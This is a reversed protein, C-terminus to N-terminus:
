QSAERYKRCRSGIYQPTYKESYEEYWKSLTGAGLHDYIFEYQARLDERKRAQIAQPDKAYEAKAALNASATQPQHHLYSGFARNCYASYENTFLIFTHWMEDVIILNKDISLSRPANEHLDRSKERALACLYIWKKTEEFIEQAEQNTLEYSDLFSSIIDSNQYSLALYKDCRM